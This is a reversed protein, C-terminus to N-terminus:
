LGFCILGALLFLYAQVNDAIARRLRSGPPRRQDTGSLRSPGRGGGQEGQHAFAPDPAIVAM